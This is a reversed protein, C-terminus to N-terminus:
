CRRFHLKTGTPLALRVGDAAGDVLRRDDERGRVGTCFNCVGTDRARGLEALFVELDSPDRLVLRASCDRTELVFLLFMTQKKRLSLHTLIKKLAAGLIVIGGNLRKTEDDPGLSM